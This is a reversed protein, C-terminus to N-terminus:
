LLNETRVWGRRDSRGHKLLPSIRFTRIHQAIHTCMLSGWTTLIIRSAEVVAGRDGSESESEERRERHLQSTWRCLSVIVTGKREQFIVIKIGHLSFPCLMCMSCPLSDVPMQSKAFSLKRIPHYM